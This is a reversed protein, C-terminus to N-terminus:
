LFLLRSEAVERVPIALEGTKKRLRKLQHGMSSLEELVDPADMAERRLYYAIHNLAYM